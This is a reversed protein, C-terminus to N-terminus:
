SPIKGKLALDIAEHPSYGKNKMTKIYSYVRCFHQAMHYTRFCGAVKKKVKTMRLNREAENNTPPVEPIETFMLVSDEHEFLRLWLNQADTHKPRGRAGTIEPSSSLEVLAEILIEKYLRRLKEREPPTLIKEERSNVMNILLKLFRKMRTAWRDGTSDEIFKLERLLHAMCLGHLVGEFSFYSAWCDHVIIGGYKDLIGMDKIGEIGRKPHIILLVTEGSSCTHVWYNKGNVRMSTEDLCLVPAERLVAKVSIEWNKKLFESLQVIYKLMVAPSIRRGMLGMFYEQIRQLSMMQVTTFNIIAAKVGEGYQVKGDIGEPFDAKTKAQCEPCEKTEATFITKVITYIIDISIRQETGTTKADDLDADCNSCKDPSLTENKVETKSNDLRSGSNPKGGEGNDKNRNGNSGFGQSPPLGSNSPTKRPKKELFAKQVVTLILLFEMILKILAKKSVNKKLILKEANERVKAIQKRLSIEKRSIKKRTSAKKRAPAKKRTPAKKM